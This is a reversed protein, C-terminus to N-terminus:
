ALFTKECHSSAAGASSRAPPGYGYEQRPRGPILPEIEDWLDDDIEFRSPVEMVGITSSVASPNSIL